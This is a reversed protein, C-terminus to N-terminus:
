IQALKLILVVLFLLENAHSLNSLVRKNQFPSSVSYALQQILDYLVFDAHHLCLLISKYEYIGNPSTDEIDEISLKKKHSEWLEQFKVDFQRRIIFSRLSYIIPFWCTRM